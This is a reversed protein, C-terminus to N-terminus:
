KDRLRNLSIARPLTLSNNTPGDVTKYSVLQKNHDYHCQGSYTGNNSTTTTSSSVCATYSILLSVYIALLTMIDKDSAYRVQPTLVHTTDPSTTKFRVLDRFQTIYQNPTPSPSTTDRILTPSYTNWDTLPDLLPHSPRM